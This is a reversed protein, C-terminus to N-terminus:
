RSYRCEGDRASSGAGDWKSPPRIMHFDGALLAKLGSPRLWFADAEQGVQYSVLVSRLSATSPTRPAFGKALSRFRGGLSLSALPRTLPGPPARPPSLGRTDAPEPPRGGTDAFPFHGTSPAGFSCCGCAMGM